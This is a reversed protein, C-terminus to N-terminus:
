TCHISLKSVLVDGPPEQFENKGVLRAAVWARYLSALASYWCIAPSAFLVAGVREEIVTVGALWVAAGPLVWCNVAM